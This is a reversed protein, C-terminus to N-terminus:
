SRAQLQEADDPWAGQLFTKVSGFVKEPSEIWPLHAANEITILRADPLMLAWDRGGGYPSHRDRTGHVVLVPMKMRAFDEATLHLRQISPLLNESYHKMLNFLSENPLHAVSWNIKGADAPDTVYLLRMLAWMKRGFEQVDGSPGEKQLEAMKAPVEAATRDAGTLHAPYQKAADPQVPAIQVVRNVHSAFKMAYLAVVMGVYSHGALDLADIGFNRRVAELDDVDHHIGRELKSAETVSDSRGRNRLDYFIVTRDEALYKFDDFMYAANPIILKPGSGLMQFFLRVGDETTVYGESPAM